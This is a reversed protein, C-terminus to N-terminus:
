PTAAVSAPRRRRRRRVAVLVVGALGIAGPAQSGGTGCCGGDDLPLEPDEPCTPLDAPVVAPAPALARVTGDFTAVVLLDGAPAPSSVVPAGLDTSWIERGDMVDLAALRGDPRPVWLIDGTVVPSAPFGPEAARYHAFNLPGPETAVRWLEAGSTADLAVLDKWQTPVFLRGDALAPAATVSYGWEFGGPTVDASWTQVSTVLDVATVTGTSNVFYLTGDAVVPTANVAITKGTRIDWAKTGTTTGWATMGDDRSYNAVALGDAVAVAALTGLWPYVPILGKEWRPIGTALDIATMRGQVAVFVAGDAITPAAWLASEYTTLDAAADHVWRRVGDDLGVAHVEGNGLAVVVTDGDIAPANHTPYPTVYRWREAGTLLDLAVLGGRNGAGLDTVSVVVVGRHVVPTGLVVTGGVPSAWLQQMPPVIPGPQAGAHSPGGGLQGWDAVALSARDPGACAEFTLTRELQLGAPSTAQVTLTHSGAALPPVQATFAWGGRATLTFVSGCDLRATVDPVAADLAASVVLEFGTTPSCSGAHPAIVGLQAELVLARHEVIPTNGEFTVIRYGSPSQDISGMVFTQTGWEVLGDREVRRNAHWHGTFMYDVGLSALQDAVVDRPSAHGLAVVVRDPSVLALDDAIFAVQDAEALNTDWVVFHLNGADFSYNDPGWRARWTAGGDYWDHNGAVPVWPAMSGQLAADVLDFEQPRNGQTVDGVISLFRVPYPLAIAQSIASRLDGGDWAEGPGYPMHSDAAIVFTLPAAAEETSLPVVGLDLDGPGVRRWVPGPRFGDPVRVWVIEEQGILDLQFRGQADTQTFGSRDVAVVAGELGPEDAQRVRDGNRDVFVTGAVTAACALHTAGLLAAGLMAAIPRGRM